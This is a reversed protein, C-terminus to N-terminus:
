NQIVILTHKRLEFNRGGLEESFLIDSLTRTYYICVGSCFQKGPFFTYRLYVWFYYIMVQNLELQKGSKQQEKLKQIASLKQFTFFLNKILCTTRFSIWYYFIIIAFDFVPSNM